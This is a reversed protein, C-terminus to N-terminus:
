PRDAAVDVVLGVGLRAYRQREGTVRGGYVTLGDSRTLWVNLGAEWGYVLGAEDGYGVGAYGTVYPDLAGRGLLFLTHSTVLDYEYEGDVLFAVAYSGCGYYPDVHGGRGDGLCAAQYGLSPSLVSLGGADGAALSLGVRALQRQAAATPALALVALLALLLRM